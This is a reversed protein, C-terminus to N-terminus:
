GALFERTGDTAFVEVELDLLERALGAIGERNAVSVLARVRPM